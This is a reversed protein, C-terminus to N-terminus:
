VKKVILSLNRINVIEVLSDAPIEEDAEAEWGTGNFEVKGPRGPAIGSIVLVKKGKFDEEIVSEDPNSQTYGHFINKLYKRLLLLSVISVTLFVLLQISLPVDPILCVVATAFAGVAFFFVILGPIEFELILLIIGVVLWLWVPSLFGRLTELFSDM